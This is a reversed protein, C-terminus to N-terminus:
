KHPKQKRNGDLDITTYFCHVVAYYITFHLSPRQPSRPCVIQRAPNMLSPRDSRTEISRVRARDFSKIPRPALFVISCSFGSKISQFVSPTYCIPYLIYATSHQQEARPTPLATVRRRRGAVCGTSRKGGGGRTHLVEDAASSPRPRSHPRPRAFGLM